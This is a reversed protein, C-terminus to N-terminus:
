ALRWLVVLLGVLFVPIAISVVLLMTRLRRLTAPVEALIQEGYRVLRPRAQETFRVTHTDWSALHRGDSLPMMKSRKAELALTLVM